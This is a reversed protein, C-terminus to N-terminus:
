IFFYGSNGYYHDQVVDDYIEKLEFNDLEQLFDRDINKDMYKDIIEIM